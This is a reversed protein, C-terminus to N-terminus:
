IDTFMEGERLTIIQKPLDFSWTPDNNLYHNKLITIIRKMAEDQILLPISEIEEDTLQNQSMYEKLYVRGRERVDVGIDNKKETKEGCTRAFRHMSFGVDRARQSYRLPDFDLLSLLEKSETDFLVNHPHLDYHIIQFPLNEIKAENIKYSREDIEDILGLVFYDFEDKQEKEKVKKIIKELPERDHMIPNDSFKMIETRYPIEELTKHLRAVETAVNKLEQQSGDFHEGEIFQYLCYLSSNYELFSADDRTRIITPTKIGNEKLFNVSNNITRQIKPDNIHSHKLLYDGSDSSVRYNNSNKEAGASLILIKANEINWGKNLITALYKEEDSDMEEYTRTTTGHNFPDLDHYQQM